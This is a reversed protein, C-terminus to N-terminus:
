GKISRGLFPLPSRKSPFFRRMFYTELTANSPGLEGTLERFRSRAGEYDKENLLRVEQVVGKWNRTGFLEPTEGERVQIDVAPGVETGPNYASREIKKESGEVRGLSYGRQLAGLLRNEEDTIVLQKPGIYYLRVSDM